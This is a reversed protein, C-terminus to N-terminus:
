IEGKCSWLPHVSPFNHHLLPPAYTYGDQFVASKLDDDDGMVDEPTVIIQYTNNDFVNKIENELDRWPQFAPKYTAIDIPKATSCCM